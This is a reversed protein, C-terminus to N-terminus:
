EDLVSYENEYQYGLIFRAQEELMDASLSSTRMMVVRDELAAREQKLDELTSKKQESLETLHSLRSYSRHGSFTHYSFYICLCIGALLFLHKRFTSHIDRLREMLHM